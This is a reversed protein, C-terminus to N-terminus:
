KPACSGGQLPKVNTVTDKLQKKYNEPIVTEEYGLKYKLEDIVETLEHERKRDNQLVARERQAQAEKLKQHYEPVKRNKRQEPTLSGYNEIEFNNGNVLGQRRRGTRLSELVSRLERLKYRTELKEYHVVKPFEYLRDCNIYRRNAKKRSGLFISVGCKPINKEIRYGFFSDNTEFACFFGDYEGGETALFMKHVALVKEM